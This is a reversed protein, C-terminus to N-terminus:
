DGWQMINGNCVIDGGEQMSWSGVLSKFVEMTGCFVPEMAILNGQDVSDDDGFDAM